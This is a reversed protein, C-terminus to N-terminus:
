TSDTKTNRDIRSLREDQKSLHDDQKGLHIDVKDLRTGVAKGFRDIAKDIMGEFRTQQKERWKRYSRFLAVISGVLALVIPIWTAAAQGWNVGTSHIPIATLIM